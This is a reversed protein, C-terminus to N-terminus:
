AAGHEARPDTRRIIDSVARQNFGKFGEGRQINELHSGIAGRAVFQTRQEATIRGEAELRGAREPDVPWREGQTFAQRLYSFDSFPRLFPISWGALGETELDFDYRGALHHLGASLMSEGHLGCWLGVTGTEERPALPTHGFDAAVEEPALDVDAFVAIECVPQEMVQAGWGAEQGAYFRERAQFGFTELIEILLGFTPRSSRFTHHDHNAWGLGLREQRARQSQGARSRQQWYDREAAFAAWCATDTGLEGVLARALALTQTMGQRADKFQRPRTAWRERAALIQGAYDPPMTVPLMGRWGRREVATVTRGQGRWVRASRLPSLPSGEVPAAVQQAALFQGLDEVRLALTWPEGGAAQAADHLIVRPFLAGPHQYVTDGRAAPVQEPEFGVAALRARLDPSDELRLHDVWDVLRGAATELLRAQFRELEPMGAVFAELMGGILAEAQPYRQWEVNPHLLGM